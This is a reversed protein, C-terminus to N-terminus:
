AYVRVLQTIPGKNIGIKSYFSEFRQNEMGFVSAKGSPWVRFFISLFIQVKM